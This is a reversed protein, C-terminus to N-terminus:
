LDLDLEVPCHDSGTIDMHIAADRIRDRLSGSVLFYDIRWGANNARANYRYSWWSYQGVADPYCARFTDVFGCSLLVDFKEREQPTFGANNVNTKPNKLDIERHAVNLDGCFIVPKKQELQQLYLRFADEWEM